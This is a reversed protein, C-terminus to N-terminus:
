GRVTMSISGRVMCISPCFFSTTTDSEEVAYPMFDGMRSSIIPPAYAITLSPGLRVVGKTNSRSKMVEAGFRGIDTGLLRRLRQNIGAM